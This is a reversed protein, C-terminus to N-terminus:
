VEEYRRLRWCADSALVHYRCETPELGLADLAEGQWRRHVDLLLWISTWTEGAAWQQCINLEGKALGANSALILPPDYDLSMSRDAPITKMRKAPCRDRAAPTRARTHFGAASGAGHRIEEGALCQRWPF